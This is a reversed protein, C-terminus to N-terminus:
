PSATETALRSRSTVNKAAKRGLRLPEYSARVDDASRFHSGSDHGREDAERENEEGRAGARVPAGPLGRRGALEVAAGTGDFPELPLDPAHARSAHRVAREGNQVLGTTANEHPRVDVALPVARKGAVPFRAG